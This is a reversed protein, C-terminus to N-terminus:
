ADEEIRANAPYDFHGLRWHEHIAEITQLVNGCQCMVYSGATRRLIQQLPPTIFSM